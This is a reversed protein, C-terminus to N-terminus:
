CELVYKTFNDSDNLLVRFLTVYGNLAVEFLRKSRDMDVLKLNLLDGNIQDHVRDLSRIPLLDGRHDYKPRHCVFVFEQDM